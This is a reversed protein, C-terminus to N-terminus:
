LNLVAVHVYVVPLYAQTNQVEAISPVSYDTEREPRNVGPISGKIGVSVLHVESGTQVHNPFSFIRAEALFRIGTM